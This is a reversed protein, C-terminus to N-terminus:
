KILKYNQDKQYKELDLEYQGGWKERFHGVNQKMFMKNVPNKKLSASEEHYITTEGCYAIKGFKGISLCMDIDDFAWRFRTSMGGIRRFSDAKVLCCAATVAQFYRNKEAHKDSEEGPRYHYPLENYKKSFIVGAHQLKNTGSYLLRSGVVGVEEDDSMIKLMKVISKPDQIVVDNNLLLFIDGHDDSDSEKWLFNMGKAFSDRNHGIEFVKVPAEYGLNILEVSNDKSGNDRVLWQHEIGEQDLYRVAEDLSPILKKLKEEGNWNLTFIFLRPKSGYEQKIDEFLM